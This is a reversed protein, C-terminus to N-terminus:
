PVLYGYEKFIKKAENSLMFDYFAKAEKKDKANKLIVIGQNIPTYLKPDVDTWNIGEKYKKMKDSYLSSKAIFGLDAATVAYSVTQSISEGYVFKTVVDDYIKANKMAEVSAKGYPATKPNAIAIKTITNEKVLNIGKSYDRQKASLIALSGQAYVIPETIAIKEAYLTDPYKMNAAMFIEYPAGNKIQATLKGSSGLTVLVKTDPNKENFKKILDDIAYSVNAAVAINLKQAFLSVSLFLLVLFIKKM